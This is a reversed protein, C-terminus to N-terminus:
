MKASSKTEEHTRAYFFFIDCSKELHMENKPTKKATHRGNGAKRRLATENKKGDSFLTM